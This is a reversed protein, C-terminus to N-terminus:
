LIHPNICLTHMMLWLLVRAVKNEVMVAM